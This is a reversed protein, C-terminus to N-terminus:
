SLSARCRSRLYGTSGSTFSSTSTSGARLQMPHYMPPDHRAGSPTIESYIPFRTFPTGNRIAGHILSNADVYLHDITFSSLPAYCTSHQKSFWGTFGPIGMKWRPNLFERITAIKTTGWHPNRVRMSTLAPPGGALIM